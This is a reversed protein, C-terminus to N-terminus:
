NYSIEADPYKNVIGLIEDYILHRVDSASKSYNWRIPQNVSKADGFTVEVNANWFPQIIIQNESFRVNINWTHTWKPHAALCKPSSVLTMFEADSKEIMLGNDLILNGFNKFNTKADTITKLYIANTQKDPEKKDQAIAIATFGIIFIFIILKKM